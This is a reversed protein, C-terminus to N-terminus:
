PQIPIISGIDELVGDHLSLIDVNHKKCFYKIEKFDPHAQINGNFVLIEGSILGSAGGIFGYPFGKLKIYGTRILLADIGNCLAAEAIKRDSTILSNKSVICVSCKAYGQSIDILKINNKMYYEIITKDTYKVNHFAINDIRAINYAINFPYTGSIQNGSIIKNEPFINQFYVAAQPVTVATLSDLQHFLIDPHGCISPYAINLEPTKHVKIGLKELGKEAEAARFDILVSKVQEKPLNPNKIFM